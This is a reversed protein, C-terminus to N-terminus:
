NLLKIYGIVYPDSKSFTDKNVLARCSIFLEIKIRDDMINM